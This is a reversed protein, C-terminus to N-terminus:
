FSDAVESPLAVEEEKIEKLPRTRHDEVLVANSLAKEGLSVSNTPSAVDSATSLATAADSTTTNTDAAAVEQPVAEQASTGLIAVQLLPGEKSASGPRKKRKSRRKAPKKTLLKRLNKRINNNLVPVAERLREVFKKNSLLEKLTSDKLDSKVAQSVEAGM